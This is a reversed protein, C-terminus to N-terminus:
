PNVFTEFGGYRMQSMDAIEDGAVMETVRSDKMVKDMVEDRHARSEFEAVAATLLEGDPVKLKDDLDDGRFERYSLAGHEKAVAGFTTAQQRYAELKKEPVPLLYIDVYGEISGGTRASEDTAM